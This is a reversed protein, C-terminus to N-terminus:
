AYAFRYVLSDSLAYINYGDSGTVIDTLGLDGVVSTTAMENFNFTGNSYPLQEMFYDLEVGSCSDTSFVLTEGSSLSTRTQM